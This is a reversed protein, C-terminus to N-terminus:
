KYIYIDPKVMKCVQGSLLLVALLNPAAMLGNLVDALNWAFAPAVMAAPIACIAYLLNYIPVARYGLLYEICRTGYLGWSLAASLGFLLLGVATLISPLPGYFSSGLASVLLESGANAGYPIPIGSCLICLATLTCLVITDAFVEFVGALGQRVPDGSGASAYAIPSSGLGAENSFVGRSVGIRMVAQLSVGTLGGGLAAPQFAGRIIEYFAAPLVSFHTFIVALTGFLYLISMLPVLQESAAGVRKAGGLLVAGIVAATALGVFLGPLGPTGVARAAEDLARAATNVQTLNGTGFAALAGCLCFWQALPRWRRGLGKEIYWMPGGTWQGATDRKRYRVALAAEAFKTAMGFFAAVWMWFVAGPGGIALAGAVGAINGTGVTGALATCLAQRASIGSAHDKETSFLSIKIAKGLRRAQLFRLRLTLFAGVGGMLLLMPMGWVLERLATIWREM